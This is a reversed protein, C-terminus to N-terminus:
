SEQEPWVIALQAKAQRQVRRREAYKLNYLHKSYLRRARQEYSEASERNTRHVQMRHGRLESSKGTFSSRGTTGGELSAATLAASLPPASTLNPRFEVARAYGFTKVRDLQLACALNFSQRLNM